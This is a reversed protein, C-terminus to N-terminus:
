DKLPWMANGLNRESVEMVIFAPRYKKLEAMTPFGTDIHLFMIKSFHPKLLPILADSFSDRVLVLTPGAYGTGSLHVGMPGDGRLQQDTTPYLPNKAVYLPFVPEMYDGIGLMNALDRSGLPPRDPSNMHSIDFDEPAHPKIKLHKMLATYAIYSGIGTWHTDWATYYNSADNHARLRDRVDVIDRAGQERALDLYIDTQTHSVATLADPLNEPYATQKDPAILLIFPIGAQRARQARQRYGDIWRQKQDEPALMVGRVIRLSSGGDMFLWGKKGEVLQATGSYGLKYRLYNLRSILFARGPFQDQAAKDFRGPFNFWDGATQPMSPYEALTRNEALQIKGAPLFPLLYFVAIFIVAMVALVTAHRKYGPLTVPIEAM